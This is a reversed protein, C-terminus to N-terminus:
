ITGPHKEVSQYHEIARSVYRALPDVEIHVRDKARLNGLTTASLTHPIVNVAFETFDGRDIVSNVTMSVGDIAVSGKAAMYKGLSHRDLAFLMKRSAGEASLSECVATGDVHGTVLHGGLPTQLTLSRELNVTTGRAYEGFNTLSITENSVDAAFAQDDPIDTVTLCVGSVSISDGVKIQATDVRGTSIRVAIGDDSRAIREIVGTGEVIGTFM